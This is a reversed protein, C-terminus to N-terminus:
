FSLLKQAHSEFLEWADETPPGVMMLEMTPGDVLAAFARGQPDPSLLREWEETEDFFCYTASQRSPPKIARLLAREEVSWGKRITGLVVGAAAGFRQTFLRRWIESQACSEIGYGGLLAFRAPREFPLGELSEGRLPPAREGRLVRTEYSELWLM